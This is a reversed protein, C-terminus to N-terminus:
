YTYQWSSVGLSQVIDLLHKGGDALEGQSVEPLDLIRYVTYNFLSKFATIKIKEM